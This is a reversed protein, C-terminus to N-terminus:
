SFGGATTDALARVRSCSRSRSRSRRPSRSRSRSRSRRGPAKRNRAGFCSPVATSPVDDSRPETAASSPSTPPGAPGLGFTHTAGLTSSVLATDGGSAEDQQQAEAPAPVSIKALSTKAVSTSTKAVRVDLSVYLGPSPLSAGWLDLAKGSRILWSAKFTYRVMFQLPDAPQVAAVRNVVRQLIGEIDHARLYVLVPQM